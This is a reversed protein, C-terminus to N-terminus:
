DSGRAPLGRGGGRHVFPLCLGPFRLRGRGDVPSPGPFLHHPPVRHLPHDVPDRLLGTGAPPVSSVPQPYIDPIGPHLRGGPPPDQNERAAGPGGVAPHIRPQGPHDDPLGGPLRLGLFRGGEVDGKRSPHQGYGVPLPLARIARLASDFCCAVTRLVTSCRCARVVPQVRVLIGSPSDGGDRVDQGYLSTYVGHRASAGMYAAFEMVGLAAMGVFFGINASLKFNRSLVYLGIGLCFLANLLPLYNLLASM